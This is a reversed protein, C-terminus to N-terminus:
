TGIFIQTRTKKGARTALRPTLEGPFPEPIVEAGKRDSPAMGRIQRRESAGAFM